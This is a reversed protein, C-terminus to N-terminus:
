LEKNRLTSCVIDIEHSGRQRVQRSLVQKRGPPMM